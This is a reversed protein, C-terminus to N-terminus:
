PIQTIVPTGPTSIQDETLVIPFSMSHTLFDVGDVNSDIYGLVDSEQFTKGFTAAELNNLLKIIQANSDSTFSEGFISNIFSIASVIGNTNFDDIVQQGVESFELKAALRIFPLVDAFVFGPRMKAQIVPNATYYSPDSVTVAIEELATRETLYTTLNTKLTGSPLGGGDPVILVNATLVGFANKIVKAVAVGPYGEALVRGNETTVFLNQAKLLLPAVKKANDISEENMGGTFFGPNSVAIIDSDNGAYGTVLGVVSINSSVGGGKAYSAFIDFVPPIEGYIGNGFAVFAQGNSKYIHRFHKDSSTSNVFTDVRTWAISNITIQSTDALVNLDPYDFEQWETLGDSQGIVVSSVSEQQYCIATFSYVTLTHTGTGATTIDIFVGNIANQLTTAVYFKTADATAILYYNTTLSLGAPLTGTTTFRVLELNNRPGVVTILDTGASATFTETPAATITVGARAEYRKSSQAISGQTTGALNAITVTKPFSVTTPDLYFILNGIATAQPAMVYDILTLLDAVAQRTFATRLFSQNAVANRQISMTDGSGAILRKIWEPKDVLQPDSNIDAMIQNYTESDTQIPNFTM